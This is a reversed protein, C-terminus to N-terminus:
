SNQQKTLMDGAMNHTRKNHAAWKKQRETKITLHTGCGLRKFYDDANNRSNM